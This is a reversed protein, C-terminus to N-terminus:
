RHLLERVQFMSCARIGASARETALIWPFFVHAPENIGRNDYPMETM